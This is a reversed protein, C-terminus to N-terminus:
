GANSSEGAGSRDKDFNNEDLFPEPFEPLPPTQGPDAPEVVSPTVVVMLETQNKNASKSQFLKGLVPIDGLGPIKTFADRMRKDLLGAIAFSQGDSLEVQTEAKRSTLAPITFGSITVANAYDLSSVEPSVKLRIRGDHLTNATFNLRIGFERWQITVANTQASQIVPVPIEGGALFSAEQGDAALLNPEALIELLNRNQLARLVMGMNVDPRYIFVNLLNNLTFTAMNESVNLDLDGFTQTTTSGITNGTGTSLFNVGMEQIASRDVEAFRVKIMITEKPLEQIFMTNVVSLAQTAGLAVAKDMIEQSTVEGSLVLAEGSQSVEINENPFLQKLQASVPRTDIQVQLDFSRLREQADWLLLTVTGPKLGHIMLQTPSVAVTQAIDANTIAVRKLPNRSQLIMSRGAFVRLTGQSDTGTGIQTTETDATQPAAPAAHIRKVPDISVTFIISTIIAFLTILIRKMHM